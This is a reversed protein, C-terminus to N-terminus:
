GPVSQVHLWYFNLQSMMLLLNQRSGLEQTSWHLVKGRRDSTWQRPLSVTWTTIMGFTTDTGKKSKRLNKIIFRLDEVSPMSKVIGEDTLVNNGIASAALDAFSRQLDSVDSLARIKRPRAKPHEDMTSLPPRLKCPMVTPSDFASGGLLEQSIVNPDFNEHEHEFDSNLSSSSSHRTATSRGFVSITNSRIINM